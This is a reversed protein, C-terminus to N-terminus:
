WDLTEVTQAQTFAPIVRIPTPVEAVNFAIKDDTRKNLRLKIDDFFAVVCLALGFVIARQGSMVLLWASQAIIRRTRRSEDCALVSAGQMTMCFMQSSYNGSEVGISGAVDLEVLSETCTTIDLVTSLTFFAAVRVVTVAGTATQSIWADSPFALAFIFALIFSHTSLSEFTKLSRKNFQVSCASSVFMWLNLWWSEPFLLGAEFFLHAAVIWGLWVLVTTLFVSSYGLSHAHQAAKDDGEDCRPTIACFSTFSMAAYVFVCYIVLIYLSPSRAVSSFIFIWNVIFSLIVVLIRTTNLLNSRLKDRTEYASSIKVDPTDM